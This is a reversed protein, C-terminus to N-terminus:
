GSTPQRTMQERAGRGDIFIKRFFFMSVYLCTITEKTRWLEFKDLLEVLSGDSPSIWCSETKHARFYFKEVKLCWAFLCQYPHFCKIPKYRRNFNHTQKCGSFLTKKNGHNPNVCCYFAKYTLWTINRTATTTTITSSTWVQARASFFTSPTNSNLFNTHKTRPPPASSRICLCYMYIQQM